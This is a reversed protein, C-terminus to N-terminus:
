TTGMFKNGLALRRVYKFFFFENAQIPLWNQAGRSDCALTNVLSNYLEFSSQFNIKDNLIICIKSVNEIPFLVIWAFVTWLEITCRRMARNLIFRHNLSRKGITAFRKILSLADSIHWSNDPFAFLWIM